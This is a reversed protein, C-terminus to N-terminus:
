GLPWAWRESERKTTTISGSNRSEGKKLGGKQVEKLEKSLQSGDISRKWGKRQGGERCGLLCRRALGGARDDLRKVWGALRAKETDLRM